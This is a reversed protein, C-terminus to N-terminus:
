EGAAQDQLVKVSFKLAELFTLLESDGTFVITISDAGGQKNRDVKGKMDTCGLDFIRLFTKGGNEPCNTGVEVGLENSGYIRRRWTEIPKGDIQRIRRKIEFM